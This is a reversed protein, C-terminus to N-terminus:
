SFFRDNELHTFYIKVQGVYNIFNLLFTVCVVVVLVNLIVSFKGSVMGAAAKMKDPHILVAKPNLADSHGLFRERTLLLLSKLEETSVAEPQDAAQRREAPCLSM